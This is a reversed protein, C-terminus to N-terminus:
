NKSKDIKYLGNVNLMNLGNNTYGKLLNSIFVSSEDYFLFIVPAEDVIIKDMAQYLEYRKEVDPERIAQEYLRDYVRNSF